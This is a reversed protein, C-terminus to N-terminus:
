SPASRHRPAVKHIEASTQKPRNFDSAREPEIEVVTRSGSEVRGLYVDSISERGQMPFRCPQQLQVLREPETRLLDNECESESESERPRATLLILAPVKSIGSLENKYRIPQEVGYGRQRFSFPVRIHLQSAQM